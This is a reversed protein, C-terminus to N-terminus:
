KVFEVIAMPANDGQRNALKLIRTYGGNRDMYRPGLVTFLKELALTDDGKGLSIERVVSAALRRHHLDGKKAYTVLRDAMKVVDKAIGLTVTVREHLILESVVNRLMNNYKSSTYAAKFRVGTKGHVNKRGQAPM